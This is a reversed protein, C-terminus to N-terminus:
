VVLQRVRWSAINQLVNFSIRARIKLPNKQKDDKGPFLLKPYIALYNPNETLLLGNPITVVVIKKLPQGNETSPQQLSLMDYVPKIAVIVTPTLTGDSLVYIPPISCHFERTVRKGTAHMVSNRVGDLVNYWLGNGSIQNHSMVAHEFDDRPGTSKIDIFLWASDTFDNSVELIEPSKLVFRKDPGAPLGTDRIHFDQQLLRLLKDGIVHEGVEIWPYQDGRPQRGRADPPYNQWFPYLHSAENYDHIIERLGTSLISYIFDAFFKELRILTNPNKVLHARAASYAVFQNKRHIDFM